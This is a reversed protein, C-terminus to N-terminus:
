NSVFGRQWLKQKHQHLFLLSLFPLTQSSQAFFRMPRHLAAPVTGPAGRRRLRESTPNAGAIAGWM